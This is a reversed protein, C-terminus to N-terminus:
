WPNQAYTESIAITLWKQSYNESICIESSRRSIAGSRLM